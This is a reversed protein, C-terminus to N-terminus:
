ENGSEENDPLKAYKWHSVFKKDATWSTTGSEYTIILDNESDYGAFHRKYWLDSSDSIPTNSVYIKDDVNLGKCIKCNETEEIHESFLWKMLGLENCKYCRGCKKCEIDDSCIVPKDDVIAILNGVAVIKSLEEKYFEFNIM